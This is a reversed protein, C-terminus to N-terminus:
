MKMLSVVWLAVGEDVDFNIETGNSWRSIHIKRGHVAAKANQRKENM